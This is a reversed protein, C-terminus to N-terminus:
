VIGARLLDHIKVIGRPRGDEVVFVATIKRENLTRLAAAALTDPGMTLPAATMVEGAKRELLKGDMHRRLDGDTVIGTLRGAQDVIGICGFSKETMTLLAESMPTDPDALPMADGAHMIQSLRIFRRGLQGGPHLASFDEPSFGQRELLAVALADGLALMLTTSTTPALNLSCAETIDPLALTVDAATDLASGRRGVMAVLPINLLKSHAVLDSLEATEGSNSLALVADARTIMGLDGHSAEGPNVYQAPTGTSAMTAAIKRAVHGSKGMGSVIVRGEARQLADLAKIFSDNLVEALATLGAAEDMLVRRGVAIDDVVPAPKKVTAMESKSM